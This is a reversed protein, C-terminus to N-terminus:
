ELLRTHWESLCDEHVKEPTRASCVPKGSVPYLYGGLIRDCEYPFQIGKGENKYGLPPYQWPHKPFMKCFM